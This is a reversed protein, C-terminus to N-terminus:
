RPLNDLCKFANADLVGQDEDIFDVLDTLTYIAIRGTGEEFHEVRLLVASEQIM